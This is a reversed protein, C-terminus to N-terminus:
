LDGWNAGWRRLTWADHAAAAVALLGVAALLGLVVALPVHWWSAM